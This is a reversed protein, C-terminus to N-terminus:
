RIRAPLGRVHRLAGDHHRAPRLTRGPRGHLPSRLPHLQHIRLPLSLRRADFIERTCADCIALDAPISVRAEDGAASTAVSFSTLSGPALATWAVETVSAPAPAAHLRAVLVDLAEEDGFAEIEVGRSDNRVSGGIDLEQAVRWVWPRFGVGQVIGEVRIARGPRHSM